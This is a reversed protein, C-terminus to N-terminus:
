TQWNNPTQHIVQLNTNNHNTSNIFGICSAYNQSIKKAQIKYKRIFKQKYNTLFERLSLIEQESLTYIFSKHIYTFFSELKWCILWRVWMSLYKTKTILAWKELIPMTNSFPRGRKKRSNQLAFKAQESRSVHHVSWFFKTQHTELFFTNKSRGVGLIM